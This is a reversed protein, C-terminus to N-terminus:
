LPLDYAIVQMPEVEDDAEEDGSGGGGQLAMMAGLFDTVVYMREGVIFFGDNLPDDNGKLTVQRVFRGEKDFVDFIAFVGKGLGNAGRSSRVWLSGDDRAFIGQIQNFNDEIEYKINPVPIRRTFGKYIDLLRAKEEEDRVHDPYERTIVRELSGDPGWVNIRYQGFDVCAFTRGDKAATWRNRFSDWEKESILANAAEMRSAQDHLRKEGGKGDILSLVSKQTFGTQDGSNLAYMMALNDGAYAASFLTRFGEDAKPEPIPYEGAPEGDPTLNIIKGPAVQLIGINGGPIRFLNFANRFEGPGEGERGITRLYEGDADYVKVENLQSDLMYLNGDDDSIVDTIVGFIEDDDETGLRWQEELVITSPKQMPTQPNEVETYDGKKVEKGRWSQAEASGIGAVVLGLALGFLALRRLPNTKSNKMNTGGDTREQNRVIAKTNLKM